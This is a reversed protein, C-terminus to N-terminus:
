ISSLYSISKRLERLEYKVIDSPKLKKEWPIKKLKKAKKKMKYFFLKKKNVNFKFTQWFFYKNGLIERNDLAGLEISYAINPCNINLYKLVKKINVNGSGIPCRSLLIGNRSSGIKYDKIHVNIINNKNKMAFELPDECSALANGIDFNIGVINKGAKNVIYKLEESDFDQHNEIAIKLDNKILIKKLNKLKKILIEIYKNWNKKKWRESSLINSGKVRIIKSNLTKAVIILKKIEVLDLPKDGDVVCFVQNKILHKNLNQLENKTKFFRFYPFEIGSLGLKHLSSIISKINKPNPNLPYFKNKKYGLTYGISSANLAFNSKNQM